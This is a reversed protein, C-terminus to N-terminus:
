RKERGTQDVGMRKRLSRPLGTLGAGPSLGERMAFNRLIPANRMLSLGASRAMQAPLFGALLSRNLLDVGVTRSRVDGRRAAEYRALTTRSGPDDRSELVLRVITECDRLGLNLGQAGIPPFAHGAEGVLALREGTLKAVSAGSLPFRQIPEEVGVAGLISHMRMEVMRSLRDHKLDVTLDALAPDEVWVLSSRDGPLPVQTFPGSRTHFETSVSHHPVSHTFNLVIASQPYSWRRVAIGAMERLPSARGDAGVVLCVAFRQGDDLDVIARDTEVSMGTARAHVIELKSHAIARKDLAAHLDSNLVNYGFAALGLDSARFEVTPARFLRGTDDVLRMVALPEAVAELDDILRLDSLYAVSRGILATSRRDAPAKPAILVTDFGASALGLATATGALGGGVVAIERRQMDIM